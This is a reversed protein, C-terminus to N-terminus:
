SRSRHANIVWTYGSIIWLHYMIIIHSTQVKRKRSGKWLQLIGLIRFWCTQFPLTESASLDLRHRALEQNCWPVGVQLQPSIYSEMFSVAFVRSFPCHQMREGWFSLITNWGDMKATLKPRLAVTSSLLM